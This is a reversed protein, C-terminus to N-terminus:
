YDSLQVMEVENWERFYRELFPKHSSGLLVLARKGNNAQMAALILDYIAWNRKEANLEYFIRFDKNNRYAFYFDYHLTQVLRSYEELNLKELYTSTNKKRDDELMDSHYKEIQRAMESEALPNYGHTRKFDEIFAQCHDIMAQRDPMCDVSYLREVELQKAVPFTLVEIEHGKLIGRYKERKKPLAQEIELLEESSLDEKCCDILYWQYCANVYDRSIYFANALRVRLPINVPETKLKAILDCVLGPAEDPSIGAEESLESIRKSYDQNYFDNEESPSLWEM